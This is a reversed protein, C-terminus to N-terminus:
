RPMESLETLVMRRLNCSRQSVRPKVGEMHASIVASYNWVRCGGPASRGRSKRNKSVDLSPSCVVAGASRSVCVSAGVAWRPLTDGGRHNLTCPPKGASRSVCVSAGVAWRPLTDGGRHNLTCPYVRHFNKRAPYASIRIRRLLAEAHALWRNFAAATPIYVLSPSYRGM